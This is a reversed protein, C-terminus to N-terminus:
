PKLREKEEPAAGRPARPAPLLGPEVRRLFGVCLATILGEAAMVPLHAAVVTGATVLYRGETFWLAAAMLLASAFVAFAGAGAAMAAALRGPNGIHPGAISRCLVAPAAMVVTNVGLTSVGGYGFFVAQLMLAALLAPVAPWGLLVGVLGNLILHVSSPGVPVHVLSAVFFASSLLATKPMEASELKKLGMATGAAALGWGAALVPGSLVGESIHM